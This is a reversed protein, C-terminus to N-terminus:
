QREPEEVVIGRFVDMKGLPRSLDLREQEMSEYRFIGSAFAIALFGFVVKKKHKRLIGSSVVAGGALFIGFIFVMPIQVFSRVAVGFVFSLLLFLFIRSKTM